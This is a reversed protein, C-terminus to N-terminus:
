THKSLTRWEAILKSKLPTIKLPKPLLKLEMLEKLACPSLQKMIEQLVGITMSKETLMPVNKMFKSQLIMNRQLEICSPQKMMASQRLPM